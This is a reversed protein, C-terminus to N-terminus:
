PNRDVNDSWELKHEVNGSKGLVMSVVRGPRYVGFGAGDPRLGVKLRCGPGSEQDYVVDLADGAVSRRADQGDPGPFLEAVLPMPTTLWMQAAELASRTGSSGHKSWASPIIIAKSNARWSLLFIVVAVLSYFSLLFLFVALPALPYRGLVVPIARSVSGAPAPIFTGALVALAARGLAQNLAATVNVYTEVMAIGMIETTLSQSAMQYLLPAWMFTAFDDSSPIADLKSWSDNTPDYKATVNWYTINCGAYLEFFGDPRADVAYDEHPIAWGPDVAEQYASWMLQLVVTPPNLVRRPM